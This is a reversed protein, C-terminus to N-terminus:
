LWIGTGGWVVYERELFRPGGRTGSYGAVRKAKGKEDRIYYGVIGWDLVQGSGM